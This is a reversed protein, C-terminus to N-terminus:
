MLGQESLINGLKESADSNSSQAESIPELPASKPKNGHKFKLTSYKNKMKSLFGPKPSSYIEEVDM